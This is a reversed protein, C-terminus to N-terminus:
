KLFNFGKANNVKDIFGKSLRSPRGDNELRSKITLAQGINLNQYYNRLCEKRHTQIASQEQNSKLALNNM